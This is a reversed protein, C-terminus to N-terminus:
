GECGDDDDCGVRARAFAPGAALVLAIVTAVGALGAALAAYDNM